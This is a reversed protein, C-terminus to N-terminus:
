PQPHEKMPETTATLSADIDDRSLQQTDEATAAAQHLTLIRAQGHPDTCLAAAAEAQELERGNTVTATHHAGQPCPTHATFVQTGATHTLRAGSPFRIQATGNPLP